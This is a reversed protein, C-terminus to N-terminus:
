QMEWSGNFVRDGTPDPAVLKWTCKQPGDEAPVSFDRLPQLRTPRDPGNYVVDYDRDFTRVEGDPSTCETSFHVAWTGPPGPPVLLDARVFFSGRTLKGADAGLFKDCDKRGRCIGIADPSNWPRIGARVQVLTADLVKQETETIAPAAATRRM